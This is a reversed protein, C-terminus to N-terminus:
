LAIFAEGRRPEAMMPAVTARWHAYHPTLKHAAAAAPTQYSEVLVFYQSDTASQYFDFRLNGPELISAACNLRTADIFAQQLGAIVRIHVFSTAMTSPHM